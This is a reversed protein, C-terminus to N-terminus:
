GAGLGWLRRVFAAFRSLLQSMATKWRSIIRERRSIPLPVGPALIVGKPMEQLQQDLSALGQNLLSRAAGEAIRGDMRSLPGSIMGQAEYELLSHDGAVTLRFAASGSIAGAPGRIEGNLRICYPAPADLLKVCTEYRGAVAPLAIQMQGRYENPGVAELRDCGPILSVLSTPDHILPWVQEAPAHLTYSGTIKM